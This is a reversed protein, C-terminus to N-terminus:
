ETASKRNHCVECLSQFPGAWFAERDGKHPTVHDVVTAETLRGEARCTECLPHDALFSLRFTKWKRDYGRQTADPRARDASRRPAHPRYTAARKPM